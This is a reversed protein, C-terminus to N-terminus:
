AVRSVPSGCRCEPFNTIGFGFHNQLNKVDDGNELFLTPVARKTPPLFILIESEGILDNYFVSTGHYKLQKLLKANDLLPM